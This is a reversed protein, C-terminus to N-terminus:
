SISSKPPFIRIAAASNQEGLVSLLASSDHQQRSPAIRRVAGVPNKTLRAFTNATGVPLQTAFIQPQNSPNLGSATQDAAPFTGDTKFNLASAFILTAPTLTGNYDTFTPEHLIDAFDTSRLGVQKITQDAYNYVFIGLITKNTGTDADPVEALSEFAIFGGDRSLRRGAPMRNVTLRLADKKTKTVQRVNSLGSRVTALYIEEDRLRM